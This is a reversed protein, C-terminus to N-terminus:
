PRPFVGIPHNPIGNGKLHRTTETEMVDFVSEMSMSGPVTDIKSIVVKGDEVWPTTAQALQKAVSQGLVITNESGPVQVNICAFVTNKAAAGLPTGTPATKLFTPAGDSGWGSDAPAEASAPAATTTSSSENGCAALIMAGVLM